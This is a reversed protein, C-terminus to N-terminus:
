WGEFDGLNQLDEVSMMRLTLVISDGDEAGDLESSADFPSANIGLAPNEPELTYICTLGPHSDPRSVEVCAVRPDRKPSTDNM